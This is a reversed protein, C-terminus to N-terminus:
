EADAPGLLRVEELDMEAQVERLVIDDIQNRDRLETVVRRQHELVGLQLQRMVDDREAVASAQESATALAARDQYEQRLGSVLDAGAQLDEAVRPLADLAAEAARTRALRLEEAHATDAPMRAWRVVAPLTSGQVLVTVLIVFSVVYIILHRDPFPTGAHTTMPVALAAALSVAGRFGAWSSVMRQRWNVRRARQVPRRDVMRILMTTIETWAIRTVIVVATVALGLITAHRLGAGVHHIGHVAGPIQVGVFVWLSGNILFTAMDWFAFAQLRSRAGIVRPGVYTLVLASVLVAVVGSCDFTQALLFAAFPTLVSLAGEELPADIRRRALTVAGAVLLGAAIGGLYSGVFREVLHLPGIAPSGTAVAVTVAFLVLATGDNIISEARLVTLPRRPLKKALGAVAAADTPSLVAGLVSAAHPEMGLARATWSVAVATAIVLGVSVLVIMRLNARIERFSTNMSEWYLIAPLFLLLVIEGDLQADGFRPILGLAGGLLILLVPPGVRYRKGLVTGLVVTAVLTVVVVLGFM